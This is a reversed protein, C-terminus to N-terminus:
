QYTAGFYGGTTVRTLTTPTSSQVIVIGNVFELGLDPYDDSANQDNLVPIPPYTPVTGDAPIATADFLLLYTKSGTANYYAFSFLKGPGAKVVIAGVNQASNPNDKYAQTTM